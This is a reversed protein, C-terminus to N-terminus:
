AGDKEKCHGDMVSRKANRLFSMGLMGAGTILMLWGRPEPIFKIQLIAVGGTEYNAAPRLWRTLVPSVLQIVGKGSTPTRNDYGKAYHVTDHSGRGGATVTISGTVWPLRPGYVQVTSYQGLTPQLRYARYSVRVRNGAMGDSPSVGFYLSTGIVDYRWNTGGWGAVSCGQTNGYDRYFCAKSTIQGLMTMTGNFQAPGQKHVVKALTVSGEKYSFTFDEPGWGAGFFGAYNRLDAYTYRYLTPDGQPFSGVVNGRIGFKGDRPARRITFERIGAKNLFTGAGGKGTLPRGVQVAGPAGGLSGKGGLTTSRFSCSNAGPNGGPTFFARDRHLPPRRGAPLGGTTTGGTSWYAYESDPRKTDGYFVSYPTCHLGQFKSGGLRSFNGLGDTPTSQYPCRPQNPNCQIGLPIGIAEYFESDGTGGTIENGFAKVTWSGEYLQTGAYTAPAASLLYVAIAAISRYLV